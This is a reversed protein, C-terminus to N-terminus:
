CMPMAVIYQRMAFSPKLISWDTNSIGPVSYKNNCISGAFEMVIVLEASYM